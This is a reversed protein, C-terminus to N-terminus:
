ARGSGPLRRGPQPVHLMPPPTLHPQDPVNPSILARLTRVFGQTHGGCGAGAGSGGRGRVAARASQPTGRLLHAGRAQGKGSSEEFLQETQLTFAGNELVSLAPCRCM